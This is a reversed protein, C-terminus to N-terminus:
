SPDDPLRDLEADWAADVPQTLDGEIRALGHLCGYFPQEDESIPLVRVYPKGRKTVVVSNRQRDHLEQMLQLCRAKFQTAGIEVGSPSANKKM